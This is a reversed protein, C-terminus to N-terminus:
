TFVGINHVVTPPTSSLKAAAGADAGRRFSGPGADREGAGAGEGVVYVHLQLLPLGPVLVIFPHVAHTLQM